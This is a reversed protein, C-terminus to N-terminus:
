LTLTNPVEAIAPHLPFKANSMLSLAFMGAICNPVQLFGDGDIRPENGGVVVEPQSIKVLVVSRV